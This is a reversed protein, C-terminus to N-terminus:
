DKIGYQIDIMAIIERSQEMVDHYRQLAGIASFGILLYNQMKPARIVEDINSSGDEKLFANDSLYPLMQQNHFQTIFGTQVLMSRIKNQYLDLILNQLSDDELVGLQGSSKLAEFRSDNPIFDTTNMLSPSYKIVSDNNLPLHNVAKTRFYSWGDRMLVYSLSDGALQRLDNQLDKKLGLLFQKEVKRDHMGERWREVLLSLTIAFVIILVEILIDLLRHKWNVEHATWARYIEKGHKAIEHEPM